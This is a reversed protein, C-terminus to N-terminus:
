SLVRYVTDWCPRLGLPHLPHGRMKFSFSILNILLSDTVTELYNFNRLKRVPPTSLPSGQEGILAQGPGALHRMRGLSGKGRLPLEQCCGQGLIISIKGTRIISFFIFISLKCIPLFSQPDFRQNFHRFFVVFFRIFM